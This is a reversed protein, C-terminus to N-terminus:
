TLDIFPPLIMESTDLVGVKVDEGEPALNAQDEAMEEEAVV